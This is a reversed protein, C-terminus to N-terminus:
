LRVSSAPSNDAEARTRHPQEWLQAINIETQWGREPPSDRRLLIQQASQRQPDLPLANIATRESSTARGSDDM